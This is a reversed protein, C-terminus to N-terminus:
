WNNWLKGLEWWVDRVKRWKEESFVGSKIWGYIFYVSVVNKVLKSKWIRKM